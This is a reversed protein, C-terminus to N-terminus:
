ETFLNRAREGRKTHDQVNILKFIPMLAMSIRIFVSLKFVFNVTVISLFIKFSAFFSAALFRM